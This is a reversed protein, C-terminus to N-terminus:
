CHMLYCSVSDVRELSKTHQHFCYFSHLLLNNIKRGLVLSPISSM